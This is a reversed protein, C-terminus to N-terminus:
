PRFEGKAKKYELFKEELEKVRQELEEYSPKEPMFFGKKNRTVTQPKPM